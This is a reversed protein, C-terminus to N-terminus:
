VQGPQRCALRVAGAITSRIKYIGTCACVYISQLDDDGFVLNAPREPLRAFAIRRGDPAFVEIGQFCAVWVNGAQDLRIGDPRECECFVQGHSLSGDVDVRFQRLRGQETDAIFLEREDVSFALGNPKDFDNQILTLQLSEPDMCYIGQCDLERENDSVGYPPDTFFVLGDSRVVIDNPSNLRKGEFRDVVKRVSGDGTLRSVCRRHHECSLLSGDIDLTNGNAQGTAERVLGIQGARYWHLRSAPIDSFILCAANEGTLSVLPNDASLWVPGEVFQFGGGVQEPESLVIM